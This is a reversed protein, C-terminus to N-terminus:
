VSGPPRARGFRLVRNLTQGDGNAATASAKAALYQDAQIMEAVSQASVTGADTTVSKPGTAAAGIAADIDPM